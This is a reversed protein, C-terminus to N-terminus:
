DELHDVITTIKELLGLTKYDSIKDFNVQSVYGKLKTILSGQNLYSICDFFYEEEETMNEFLPDIPHKAEQFFNGEVFNLHPLIDCQTFISDVGKNDVIKYDEKFDFFNIMFPTGGGVPYLFFRIKDKEVLDHAWFEDGTYKIVKLKM